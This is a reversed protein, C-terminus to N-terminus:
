HKYRDYIEIQLKLLMYLLYYKVKQLLDHKDKKQELHDDMWKRKVKCDCGYKAYVCDIDCEPCEKNIHKDYDKRLIEEKCDDCIVKKMLCKNIGHDHM